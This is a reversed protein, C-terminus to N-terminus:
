MYKKLQKEITALSALTQNTLNACEAAIEHVAEQNMIPKIYEDRELLYDMSVHFYDAVKVVNDVSPTHADWRYLANFSLGIESSLDKLSMGKRSCLYKIRVLM